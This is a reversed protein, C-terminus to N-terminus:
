APSLEQILPPFEPLLESALYGIAGMRSSLHSGAEAHLWTAWVAAQAPSAGRALLGTIAGALVDGSGSTGLGTNETPVRWVSGADDAVIDFCTVVAGYSVAIEPVAQELPEASRGLLRSAEERNPTLVLRGHLRRRVNERELGALAYADVVCPTDSDIMPMLSALLEGALDADDLGCGVLLADANEAEKALWAGMGTVSGAENQPLPIVGAEPLGVALASVTSEAAALSLRGAGVRLAATGALLVAGPSKAAGGVVLVSGREHKSGGAAPLAWRALSDATVQQSAAPDTNDPAM